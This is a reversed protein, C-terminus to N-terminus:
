REPDNYHDFYSSPLSMKKSMKANDIDVMLGPGITYISFLYKIFSFFIYSLMKYM